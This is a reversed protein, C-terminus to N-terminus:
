MEVVRILVSGILLTDGKTSNRLNSPKIPTRGTIKVFTGNTSGLDELFFRDGQRAVKAHLRSAWTDGTLAIDGERGIVTGELRTLPFRLSPRNDPGIFDLYALPELRRWRFTEGDPSVVPEVLTPPEPLQFEIVHQGVQFRTGPAAVRGAKGAPVKRYVGNLTEGEEVFLHDGESVIRLHEGALFEPAPITGRRTFRPRRGVVHETPKIQELERWHEGDYFQLILLHNPIGLKLGGGIM